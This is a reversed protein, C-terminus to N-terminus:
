YYKRRIRQRIFRCVFFIALAGAIVACSIYVGIDSSAGDDDSGADIKLQEWLSNVMQLTKDDFNHYYELNYGEPFEPALIEMAGEYVSEMYEIYEPDSNVLTNPTAYYVYESNAAGIEKNLMFNIYMEAIEKNQSGKPICMADAFVNTGGEPYYFGLNDNEEYMALFDGAYYAAIWASENEMKNFIEDMVYAQLMPKQAKLEALASEWVAKDTNNVSQGNKFLATGFADRSNNFQL